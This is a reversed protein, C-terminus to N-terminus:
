VAPLGARSLLGGFLAEGRAARAQTVGRNRIEVRERGVGPVLCKVSTGPVLQLQGRKSGM